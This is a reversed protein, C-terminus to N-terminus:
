NAKKKSLYAVSRKNNRNNSAASLVAKPNKYDYIGPDWKKKSTILKARIPPQM